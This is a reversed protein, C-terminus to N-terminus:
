VCAGITRRVIGAIRDVDADELQPYLPLTMIRPAIDESVPCPATTKLYPLLNLSPYFYRRAFINEKKLAQTVELLQAEDRLIIPYYAYNFELDAVMVPRRVYGQLLADYRQCVRQREKMLEHIRPLNALGMAAHFESAKANIGLSIHEDANHGFRMALGAKEFAAKDQIILAGGEVTHFLKTAHFSLTAADGYSCLAKGRYRGGMTHAADYILPINHAKAIMGLRDVDCPYGFVHVAMIAKTKETIAQEIKDPDICLTDACIDAFVPTCREWLISSTTAVYSFPTTIVEGGDIGLAHLAIQLALTGNTMFLLNGVGLYSRLMEELRCCLPGRNTLQGTEWIQKLYGVYEDFDPLFSKTVYIPNM